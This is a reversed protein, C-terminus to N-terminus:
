GAPRGALKLGLLVYETVAEMQDARLQRVRNALAPESVGLQAVMLARLDKPTCDAAQVPGCSRLLEVLEPFSVPLQTM